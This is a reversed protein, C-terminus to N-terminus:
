IAGNLFERLQTLATLSGIDCWKGQHAFGFLRGEAQAKHYLEPLAFPRIAQGEFLRPHLLQIGGYIYPADEDVSRYRLRHGAELYYDGRNEFGIANQKPILTLLADMVKDDYVSMLQQLLHQNPMEEWWIDANISLFPKGEFSPLAKLIGGGTELPETEEYSIIIEVDKIRELYDHIQDALYHTNVIVKKIGATKLREVGYALIPKGQLPILPKPTTLTLPQLRKGKGAALIMAQDVIM